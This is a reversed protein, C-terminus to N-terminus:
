DRWEYHGLYRFHPRWIVWWVHTWYFKFIFEVDTFRHMRDAIEYMNWGIVAGLIGCAIGAAAATEPGDVGALLGCLSGVASPFIAAFLGLWYPLHGLNAHLWIGYEHNYGLRFWTWWDREGTPDTRSVPNGSAYEYPQFTQDIAPDVSIFQGTAPDYYRNLLYILGTPDTYGGAYGFPTTASLGGTTEPNGWADYAATGTLAGSSNVTGRVSGLSDTVLYTIAGTSLNVQETPAVGGCYIYANKRGHHAAPDASQTGPSPRPQRRQNHRHRADGDGNYTAATMSAARDSYATLQGASNWTGSVDTTGGQAATSGSETPTIPTTRPRAPCSSSTLESANDYDPARGTPLTTLNGSADFAYNLTSGTGPTM